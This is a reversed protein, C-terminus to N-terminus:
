MTREPPSDERCFKEGMKLPPLMESFPKWGLVTRDAKPLAVPYTILAGGSADLAAIRLARRKEQETVPVDFAGRDEALFRGGRGSEHHGNHKM